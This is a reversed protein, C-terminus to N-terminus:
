EPKEKKVIGKDDYTVDVTIDGGVLVKSIKSGSKEVVEKDYLIEVARAETLTSVFQDHEESTLTENSLSILKDHETTTLTELPIAMLQDHEEVTLTTDPISLLKEREDTELTVEPLGVLKDHEETTLTYEPIAMLKEHEDVSLAGTSTSQDVVTCTDPTNDVVKAKGRITITGFTCSEDLIIEGAGVNIDIKGNANTYNKILLSGWYASICIDTDTNNCDLVPTSPSASADKCEIIKIVDGTTISALKLTDVIYCNEATGQFGELSEIQSDNITCEGSVSGEMNVLQFVCNSVDNGAIILKSQIKTNGRWDTDAIDETGVLELTGELAFKYFKRMEAITEADTFNNVPDSPTGRPYSTGSLGRDVDISVHGGEFSQNQMELSYTLGASNSPNVSVYNKNNVALLNTNAGVLYVAYLGNEFTVTWNIIKVSRALTVGGIEFPPVHIVMPLFPIGDQSAHARRLERRLADLDLQRIETPLSQILQMDLRPITIIRNEWDYQYAM